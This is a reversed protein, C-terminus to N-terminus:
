RNSLEADTFAINCTPGTDSNIKGAIVRTMPALISFHDHGKALHFHVAPNKSARQMARLSSSNGGTAGEFVFTPNQICHLWRGPARLELERRNSIDFPLEKRGYGGVDEVPGFSFVARFRNNCEATLLALTGGTSHGGLYIRTPDVYDQKGLYDAAAIVDDVEGYFGENFGPNDNGGRLAPYMMILGAQRFASASQDNKPSAREWATEGIGNGFGGFIWIIAAHKQGDNRSPTLYAAMKGAPSDYRVITFMGPPPEPVAEREAQKKILNTQFGRRAELLSPETTPTGVSSACGCIFTTAILVAAKKMALLAVKFRHPHRTFDLNRRLADSTRRFSALISLGNGSAQPRSNLSLSDGISTERADRYRKM